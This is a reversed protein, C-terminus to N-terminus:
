ISRAPRVPGRAVIDGAEAHRWRGNRPSIQVHQRPRPRRTAGDAPVMPDTRPSSALITQYLRIVFQARNPNLGLNVLCPTKTRRRSSPSGIGVLVAIRGHGLRSVRGHGATGEDQDVTLDVKMM